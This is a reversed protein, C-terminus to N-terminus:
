SLEKLKEIYAQSEGGVVLVQTTSTSLPTDMHNWARRERSIQLATQIAKIDGYEIQPWLKALMYDFRENEMMLLMDREDENLFGAEQKFRHRIAGYVQQPTTHLEAAIDVWSLGQRRMAYAVEVASASPVPLNSDESNESM